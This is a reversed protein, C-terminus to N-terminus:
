DEDYFIEVQLHHFYAADAEGGRRWAEGGAEMSRLEVEM